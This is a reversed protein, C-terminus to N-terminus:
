LAAPGRCGFGPCPGPDCMVGGRWVGCHRSANRGPGTVTHHAVRPVLTELGVPLPLLSLGQVTRTRVAPSGRFRRILCLGFTGTHALRGRAGVGAARPRYVLISQTGVGCAASAPRRPLVPMTWWGASRGWGPSTLRTLTRHLWPLRACGVPGRKFRGVLRERAAGWGSRFHM